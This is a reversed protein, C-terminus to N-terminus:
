LKQQFERFFSMQVTGTHSQANIGSAMKQIEESVVNQANDTIIKSPLDGM